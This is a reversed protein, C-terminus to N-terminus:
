AFAERLQDVYRPCEERPDGGEEYELVIYGRYGTDKLIAALRRFDCPQKKGAESPARRGDRTIM